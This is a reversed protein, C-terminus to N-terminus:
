KSKTNINAPQFLDTLNKGVTANFRMDGTHLYFKEQYEILIMISGAM